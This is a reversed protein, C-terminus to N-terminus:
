LVPEQLGSKTHHLQCVLTPTRTKKRKRKQKNTQKNTTNIVFILPNPRLPRLNKHQNRVRKKGKSKSKKQIDQSKKIKEVRHGGTKRDRM